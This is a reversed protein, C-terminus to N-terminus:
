AIIKATGFSLQGTCFSFTNGDQANTESTEGEPEVEDEPLVHQAM